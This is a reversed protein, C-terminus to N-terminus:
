AAAVTAVFRDFAARLRDTQESVRSSATLVMSAAESTQNVSSSLSHIDQSVDQTGRTAQQVNHSIENTAAGQQEVAAAIEATYGDVKQMTAAIDQIAKVAEGTSAQIASIQSGIEETAKSTQNALEKVEAAVVAFGKGAEGARAAEITANLALLNTQEAIAQILTVVEGIKNAAEALSSVKANTAQTNQTAQAVIDSTRAVQSSIESISASLEEAASAVSQVNNSAETSASAATTTRESSERAINSLTGATANMENASESVAGLLQQVTVRFDAVAAEVRQQRELQASQERTQAAELKSREVANDRFVQVTRSMDGIEDGREIGPIAIDHEGDALAQMTNQLSRLPRTISRVVFFAAVALLALLAFDMILRATFDSWFIASLDDTYVGTLILVNWPKFGEFYSIKGVPADSGPKPWVYDIYGKGDRRAIDGMMKAFPKGNADKLNRQDKGVLEMRVPHMVVALSEDMLQVVFYNNGGYRMSGIAQYARAQAEELSLTGNDVMKQHDAMVAVASETLSRLEALKQTHLSEYQKWSEVAMLAALGLAFLALLSYLRFGISLKTGTPNM